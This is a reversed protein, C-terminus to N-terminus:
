VVSIELQSVGLSIGKPTGPATDSGNAALETANATIADFLGGVTSPMDTSTFVSTQWVQTTTGDGAQVTNAFRVMYTPTTALDQATSATYPATALMAATLSDSPSATNLARSANVIKNAYGRLVSVDPASTGPRSLGYEQQQAHISTWMDATSQGAYASAIIQSWYKLASGGYKGLVSM